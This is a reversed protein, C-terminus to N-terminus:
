DAMQELDSASIKRKIKNKWEGTPHGGECEAKVRRRSRYYMMKLRVPESVQHVNQFM